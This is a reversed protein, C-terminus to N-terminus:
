RGMIDTPLEHYIKILDSFDNKKRENGFYSQLSVSLDPEEYRSEINKSM